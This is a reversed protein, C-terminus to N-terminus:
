QARGPEEASTPAKGPESKSSRQVEARVEEAAPASRGPIALTMGEALTIGLVVAVFGAVLSGLIYALAMGTEGRQWLTASEFEFSSFTTYGGLFGTILM